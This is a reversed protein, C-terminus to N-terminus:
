PEKLQLLEGKSNYEKVLKKIEDKKLNFIKEFDKSQRDVQTGPPYSYLYGGCDNCDVRLTFWQVAQIDRIDAEKGCLICERLIVQEM